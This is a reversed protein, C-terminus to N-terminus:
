KRLSDVQEVSLGTVKSISASDLRMGILSFATEKAQKFLATNMASLQDRMDKERQVYQATFTKDGELMLLTERAIVFEKPIESKTFYEANPDKLFSIWAEELNSISPKYKQLELFHLELMDTYKAHTVTDSLAITRHCREDAFANYGLLNIMILRPLKDYPIARYPYILNKIYYCNYPYISCIPQNPTANQKETLDQL